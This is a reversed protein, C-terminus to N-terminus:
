NSRARLIPTPSFVFFSCDAKKKSTIIPLHAATSFSHRDNTCINKKRSFFKASGGLMVPVPCDSVFFCLQEGSSTPTQVTQPHDKWRRRFFCLLNRWQRFLSIASRASQRSQNLPPFRPLPLHQHSSRLSALAVM